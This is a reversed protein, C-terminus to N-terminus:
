RYCGVMWFFCCGLFVNIYVLAAPSIVHCAPPVREKKHCNRGAHMSRVFDRVAIESEPEARM